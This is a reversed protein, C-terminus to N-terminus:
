RFRFSYLDADRLVFRLRVPKGQLEELRGDSTWRIAQEVHDGYAEACEKLSLGEVPTGDASQVEVRLSGAASTSYNVILERGKFTLPKTILEGGRMPAQVSVFGDIRLTYRRISCSGGEYYGENVYLSLDRPAGPTASETEVIGLWVYNSRNQWKESNLGPRIFAERWRHFARGDRSSMLLGETLSGREPLYRTPLGLFIHPARYYPQVQNTYLHEPPADPYELWVPETWHVFDKWLATRIDRKGARFDRHYERYEGRVSDWFGLNQSDFAGATIVPEAQIPSWHIGDLSRFAHLSRHSDGTGRGFGKYKAEPPCEPNSDKFPTFNHTGVGTWVINNQKSGAFDFLGLDPRRWHIGDSSEAYCTLEPHTKKRTERDFHSGRYYMRYLEGDRFITFYACTNGEWPQDTVLVIERPVPHNLRRAAAGRLEGVLHDDVFLELRSGIAIPPEAHLTGLTVLFGLGCISLPLCRLM